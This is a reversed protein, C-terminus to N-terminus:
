GWMTGAELCKWSLAGPHIKASTSLTQALISFRKHSRLVEPDRHIRVWYKGPKLEGRAFRSSLERCAELLAQHDTECLLRVRIRSAGFARAVIVVPLWPNCPVPLVLSVACIIAVVAVIKVVMKKRKNM